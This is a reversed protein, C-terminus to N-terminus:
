FCRCEHVDTIVTLLMFTVNPYRDHCVFRRVQTDRSMEACRQKINAKNRRHKKNGTLIQWTENHSHQMDNQVHTLTTALKKVAREQM